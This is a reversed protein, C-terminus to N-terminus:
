GRAMRWFTPLQVNVTEYARHVIFIFFGSMVLLGIPIGTAQMGTRAIFPVVWVAALLTKEYPAFGREAAHALMFAIAVGLITMDYDLCYPTALLTATATAAAILRKDARMLVLTALSLLVAITFVAQVAYAVPVSAGFSRVASFASQIKYWGTGGQELVVNKTFAAFKFFAAWSEPGFAILSLVVMTAVTLAAARVTRWHGGLILILPVVVGFQPKYSLLGFCIGALVPRRELLVLGTGLLASTLFANHGHGMTVFVAPFGFTAVFVLPSPPVILKITRMFLILTTGQWVILSAVYPLNALLGALALFPPPYHWGYHDVWPDGFIDSQYDFHIAPDFMGARDGDLLMRGATWFASFDTGIPRGSRDTLPTTGTSWMFALAFVGIVGLMLSYARIREETLWTGNRIADRM